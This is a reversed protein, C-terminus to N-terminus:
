ICRFKPSCLCIALTQFNIPTQFVTQSPYASEHWMGFLLVGVQGWQPWVSALSFETPSFRLPLASRVASDSQGGWPRSPPHRCQRKTCPSFSATSGQWGACTAVSGEWAPGFQSPSCTICVHSKCVAHFLPYLM